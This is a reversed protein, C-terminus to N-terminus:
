SGPQMLRGAARVSMSLMDFDEPSWQQGTVQQHLEVWARRGPAAYVPRSAVLGNGDFRHITAPRATVSGPVRMRWRRAVGVLDLTTGASAAQTRIATVGIVTRSSGPPAGRALDGNVSVGVGTAAYQTLSRHSMNLNPIGGCVTILLSLQEVLSVFLPSSVGSEAVLTNLAIHLLDPAQRRVDAVEQRWADGGSLRLPCVLPTRTAALASQAAALAAGTCPGPRTLFIGRAQAAVTALRDPWEPASGDIVVVEGPGDVLRFLDPLSTLHRRVADDDSPGIGRGDVALPRSM